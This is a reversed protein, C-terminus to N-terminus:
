GYKRVIAECAEKIMQFVPDFGKQHGYWPDPVSRNEGPAVEEMLLNLKGNKSGVPLLGQVEYLVDDALAYILDFEEFDKKTIRRARQGKIDIGYKECTLIARHDPMQGVHYSETGASDVEWDLHNKDILDKM